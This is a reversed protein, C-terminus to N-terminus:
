YPLPGPAGSSRAGTMSTQPSTVTPCTTNTNAWPHVDCLDGLTANVESSRTPATSHLNLSSVTSDRFGFSAPSRGGANVNRLTLRDVVEGPTETPTAGTMLADGLGGESLLGASTTAARRPDSRPRQSGPLSRGTRHSRFDLTEPTIFRSGSKPPAPRVDGPIPRGQVTPGSEIRKFSLPSHALVARKIELAVGDTSAGATLAAIGGVLAAAIGALRIRHATEVALVGVRPGERVLLHRTAPTWRPVRGVGGRHWRGDRTAGHRAQVRSVRFPRRNTVKRANPLWPIQHASSVRGAPRGAM